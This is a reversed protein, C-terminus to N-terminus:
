TTFLEKEFAIEFVTLFNEFLRTIQSIMKSLMCPYSRVFALFTALVESLASVEAAVHGFYM